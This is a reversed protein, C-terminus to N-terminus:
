FYLSTGDQPDPDFPTPREPTVLSAAVTARVHRRGEPMFEIELGRRSARRVIGITGFGLGLRPLDTTLMVHDDIYCRRM